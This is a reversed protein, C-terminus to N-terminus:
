QHIQNIFRELPTSLLDKLVKIRKAKPKNIIRARKTEIKEYRVGPTISLRENLYIINESFFALNLNPYKYSSQNNYYPFANYYFNFDPGSKDSGPGQISANNSKYFKFGLLNTTKIKKIKRNTLMKYESGINNFDGRILDREIM